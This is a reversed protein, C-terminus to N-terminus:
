KKTLIDAIMTHNAATKEASPGPSYPEFTTCMQAFPILYKIRVEAPLENLTMVIEEMIHPTHAFMYDAFAGPDTFTKTTCKLIKLRSLRAASGSPAAVPTIPKVNNNAPM